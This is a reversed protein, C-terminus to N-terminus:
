DEREPEERKVARIFSAARDHAPRPLPLAHLGETWCGVLFRIWGVAVSHAKLRSIAAARPSAEVAAKSLSLALPGKGLWM